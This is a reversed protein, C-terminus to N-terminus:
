QSPRVAEKSVPLLPLLMEEQQRMVESRRTGRGDGGIKSGRSMISNDRGDDGVGDGGRYM